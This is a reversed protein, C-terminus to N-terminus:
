IGLNIEEIGEIDKEGRGVERRKAAAVDAERM